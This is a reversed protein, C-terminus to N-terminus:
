DWDAAAVAPIYYLSGGINVRIGVNTPLENLSTSSIANTTGSAAAFGQISLIAADTDVDAAGTANGANVLRLVALETLGAPDSAAGDSYIEFMAACLTGAPAWSAIDPIHLTGRVAAGLGSCESGGAEAAFGLSLHAGHATGINEEVSTFARLAEGGGSTAGALYLRLYACRTDSAEDATSEGRFELFNKNAEDTTMPEADTGGGIALAGPDGCRTAAALALILDSLLRHASM